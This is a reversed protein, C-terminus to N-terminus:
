RGKSASPPPFVAPDPVNSPRADARGRVMAFSQIMVCATLRRFLRTRFLIGVDKLPNLQLPPSLPSHRRTARPVTGERARVKDLSMPKRLAPKLSEPVFAVAYLTSAIGVCIAVTFIYQTPVFAGVLPTTLIAFSFFALVLGFGAARNAPSFTDAVFALLIAISHVFGSTAQAIYYPWLSITGRSYLLILATPILSSAQSLIVFPRRGMSDSLVGMLPSGFFTM